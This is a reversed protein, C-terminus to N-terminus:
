PVERACFYGTTVSFGLGGGSRWSGAFGEEDINRVSLATYTGDYRVLDKRNADSGLRVTIIRRGYEERELVLVGPASPDRSGPDGVRHAGVSELDVDTFGYLPTSADALSYSSGSSNSADQPGPTDSDDPADSTDPSNSTPEQRRLTLLGSVARAASTADGEASSSDEMVGSSDAVLVIHYRGARDSLTAGPSLFGEFPECGRDQPVPDAPSSQVYTPEDDPATQLAMACDATLGLIFLILPMKLM